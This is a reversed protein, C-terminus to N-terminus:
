RKEYGAGPEQKLLLRIVNEFSKKRMDFRYLYNSERSDAGIRTDIFYLSDTRDDYHVGQPTTNFKYLSVSNGAAGRGLEVAKIEKDTVAIVYSYGPYWFVDMIPDSSAFVEEVRAGAPAQGFPKDPVALYVVGIMWRTFYLFKDGEPSFKKGAIGAPWSAYSALRTMNAGDMQSRFLGSKKMYYIYGNGAVAFDAIARESVVKMEQAIPFLVIRDARTVMNPRVVIEKEWPYFGDRRVEVKYIGPRLEEIQAPTVDGLMKGSLYISAGAPLSEVYLIGTKYIRLGHYDIKYGLAYSLVIPLLACFLAVCAYFAIARKIRDRRRM